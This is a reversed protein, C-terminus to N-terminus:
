WPGHDDIMYPTRESNNRFSRICNSVAEILFKYKPPAEALNRM